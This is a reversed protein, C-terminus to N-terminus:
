YSWHTTGRNITKQRLKPTQTGTENGESVYEHEERAQSPM